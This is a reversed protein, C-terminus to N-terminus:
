ITPYMTYYMLESKTLTADSASAKIIALLAIEPLLQDVEERFLNSKGEQYSLLLCTSSKTGEDDLLKFLKDKSSEITTIFTKTLLTQIPDSM